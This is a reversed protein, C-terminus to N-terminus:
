EGQEERWRQVAELAEPTGIKELAEVAHYRVSDEGDRLATSLNPIASPDGLNGLAKAVHYRVKAESDSLAEILHPIATSAGMKGLSAAARFRVTANPDHLAELFAPIAPIGINQLASVAYLAVFDASGRMADLLSSVTSPDRISGLAEAAKSAIKVDSDHLAELLAPVTSQDGITGLVWAIKDRVPNTPDRLAELLAPITALDGISSLAAAAEGSTTSFPNTMHELLGASVQQRVSAAVEIGSALCAAALFLETQVLQNVVSTPDPIIGSLAVIVTEWKPDFRTDFLLFNSNGFIEIRLKDALGAKWLGVAAFYELLLQHSFRLKNDDAIILSARSGIYLLDPNGLKGEAYTLPVDIPQNEDIMNFALNGFAVLMEDFSIWGHTQRLREREWSVMVLKEFLDGANHPLDGGYEFILTLAALLYPNRALHLLSRENKREKAWDSENKRFQPFVKVLFAGAQEEGLYQVAFERIKEDTLPEVLVTPLDGLKLDDHYDGQRCTIVAYRPGDSAQLWERLLAAKNKGEGGMENLGDLYLRVQGSQLERVVDGSMHTAEWQRRIFDAATTEASWRPLYVLFPLPMDGGRRNSFPDPPSTLQELRARAMELALRRLTTTKGAGPDGILVFKPHDAVAQQINDIKKTEPRVDREPSPPKLLLALSPEINKRPRPDVRVVESQASLAIYNEVGQQSELDAILSTLYQIEPSPRNGVVGQQEDQIRNLLIEFQRQFATDDLFDTFDLWQRRPLWFPIKAQIDYDREDFINRLLLPLIPRDNAYAFHLEDLCVHSRFYDPTLIAIMGSCNRLAAGISADWEEGTQIDMRDIWVNVGRNKLDAALQLAFPNEESKYSIFLTDPM